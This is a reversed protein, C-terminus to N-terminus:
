RSPDAIVWRRRLSEALRPAHGLSAALTDLAQHQGAALQGARMADGSFVAARVLAARLALAELPPAQPLLAEGQALLEASVAGLDVALDLRLALLSVAHVAFQAAALGDALALAEAHAGAARLACARWFDVEDPDTLLDPDSRVAALEQAIRRSDDPLTFARTLVAAAPTAAASRAPSQALGAYLAVAAPRDDCHWYVRALLYWPWFDESGGGNAEYLEISRRAAAITQGLDGRLLALEARRSQLLAQTALDDVHQLVVMGHELHAQARDLQGDAMCLKVLNLLMTKQLNVFNLRDADALAAELTAIADAPRGQVHQTFALLNCAHVRAERQEPATLLAIAEHLLREARANEKSMRVVNALSRLLMARQEDSLAAGDDLAAQLTQEAEELRGAEGLAFALERLAKLRLPLPQSRFQAHAVAAQACELAQAHRKRLNALDAQAALAEIQWADNGAQQALQLLADLEREMANLDFLLRELDARERLLGAREAPDTAHALAHELQVLAERYAFAHRSERAAAIWWPVARDHRGAGDFHHAIRDPRGAHAALTEALRLHILLRREPGLSGDLASRVLDHGFRYAGPGAAAEGAAIAGILSAGGARELGDLAEWESLATAPQIQALTFGDGALAATELVRRAAPGLRAVRELVAQQVSPPVPLADYDDADDDHRTSWLGRDDISLEGADFLFRLTELLFYPNGQTARQLREAFLAGRESGSLARVLQLTGDQDLPALPVRLLLGSRELRLVREHVAAADALESRRATAVIRAAPQASRALRRVLIEIAELSSDDFWHLDDILVIGDAALAQLGAALAQLFRSRAAAGEAVDAPAGPALSPALRALEHRDATPLRQLLALAPPDAAARRLADAIPHLAAGHGLEVGSLALVRGRRRAFEAALRSKGIGPDGEILVLTRTAAALQALADDRGVLPADFRALGSAGARLVLPAIQEAARIQEALAATAPLPDLGLENRLTRRCREFLELARAREGTLYHLRMANTYHSEQLPDLESLRVHLDTAARANGESEHTAAASVAAHTWRRALDERRGALWTDFADSEALDFGDMLTGRWDPLAAGAALADLMDAADCRMGQALALADGAKVVLDGAGAERLRHLERRLNRRAAESDGDSWFLAALKARTARGELALYALLALSKKVPLRLPEGARLVRPAGLLEIRLASESSAPM